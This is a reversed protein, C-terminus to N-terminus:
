FLNFVIIKTVRLQIVKWHVVVSSTTSESSSKRVLQRLTLRWLRCWDKEPSGKGPLDSGLM